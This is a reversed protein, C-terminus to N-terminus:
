SWVRRRQVYTSIIAFGAKLAGAEELAMLVALKSSQLLADIFIIRSGGAVIKKAHPLIYKRAHARIAAERTSHTDTNGANFEPVMGDYTVNPVLKKLRLAFDVVYADESYILAANNWLFARFLTSVADVIFENSPNVRV